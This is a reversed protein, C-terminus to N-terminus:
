PAGRRAAPSSCGPPSARRARSTPRSASPWARAWSSASRSWRTPATTSTSRRCSAARPWPRWTRPWSPARRAAARGRRGGRRARRPQPAHVRVDGPGRRHVRLVRPLRAEVFEAFGDAGTRAARVRRRAEAGTAEVVARFIAEKDTSTTTSRARPSTPAACSTACAPPRSASSASRTARRRAAAGRPEGGQHARPARGRAGDRRCRRRRDAAPARRARRAREGRRREQRAALVYDDFDVQMTHRKSAVYRKFMARASPRSTPGCSPRAAAPPLPRRPPRLDVRSQLEALPMIAGLPQLLGVFYVGAVRPPLGAPVAAPRQRARRDAGPRLVPVHGQLRHLLRRHRGRGRQRRRVARHAGDAGRHEAEAHDRRARHALARRRLGDSAGRRLPPRAEAPRLAGHRRRAAQLM